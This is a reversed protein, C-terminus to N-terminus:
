AGKLAMYRALHHDADGHEHDIMIARKAYHSLELEYTMGIGGHMQISEEAVRTATTGITYKAAALARDRTVIDQSFAAAANIVASRAEEIEILVDGMRHQLAQNRGIPAGFQVRTRLYELTTEKLWDMIGLSEACVALTGLAIARSADAEGGINADSPLQVANLQLNGARLGDNTAYGRVSLGAADAPVNFLLFEGSETRASVVFASAAEAFPAVAKTGTLSWGGDNRSALTQVNGWDYRGQPEYFAPVVIASGALIGELEREPLVSGAMLVPLVPEGVLAQGLTEFVAMVDFASGGFGGSEEPFLVGIAGLEVLQAWTQPDHGPAERAATKRREVSYRERLMRGLVDVLAQRDDGLTFDM